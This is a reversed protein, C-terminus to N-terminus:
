RFHRDLIEEFSLGLHSELEKISPLIQLKPMSIDTNGVPLIESSGLQTLYNIVKEDTLLKKLIGLRHKENKKFDSIIRVPLTLNCDDLFEEFAYDENQVALQYLRTSIIHSIPLGANNLLTHIFEEVQDVIPNKLISKSSEGQEIDIADISRPIAVPADSFTGNYDGKVIIQKKTLEKVQQIVNPLERVANRTTSFENRMDSVETTLKNLQIKQPEVIENICHKTCNNVDNVAHNLLQNINQIPTTRNLVLDYINAMMQYMPKMLDEVKKYIEKRSNAILVETAGILHEQLTKYMPDIDSTVDYHETPIPSYVPTLQQSEIISIDDTSGWVSEPKPTDEDPIDTNDKDTDKDVIDAFQVSSSTKEPPIITTSQPTTTLQGMMMSKIDHIEIDNEDWDLDPITNLDPNNPIPQQIQKDRSAENITSLKSVQSTNLPNKKISLDTDLNIDDDGLDFVETDNTSSNAAEISAIFNLRDQDRKAKTAEYLIDQQTLPNMHKLKEARTLLQSKNLRDTEKVPTNGLMADLNQLSIAPNIKPIYDEQSLQTLNQLLSTSSLVYPSVIVEKLEAPFEQEWEQLVNSNTTISGVSLPVIVFLNKAPLHLACYETNMVDNILIEYRGNSLERGIIPNDEVRIVDSFSNCQITAKTLKTGTINETM